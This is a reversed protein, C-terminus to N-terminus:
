FRGEAEGPEEWGKRRNKVGKCHSERQPGCLGSHCSGRLVTQWSRPSPNSYGSCSDGECTVNRGVHLVQLGKQTSNSMLALHRCWRVVSSSGTTKQLKEQVNPIPTEARFGTSRRIDRCLSCM